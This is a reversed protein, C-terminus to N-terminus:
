SDMRRRANFAKVVTAIQGFFWSQSHKDVIKVFKDQDKGAKHSFRIGSDEITVGQVLTFPLEWNMRLRRTWFSLVRTATLM